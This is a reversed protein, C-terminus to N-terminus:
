KKRLEELIEELLDVQKRNYQQTNKWSLWLMYATTGFTWLFIAFYIWIEFSVM